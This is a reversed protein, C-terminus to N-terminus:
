SKIAGAIRNAIYPTFIGAVALLFKSFETLDPVEGTKAFRYTAPILIGMAWTVIVFLGIFAILRSSSSPYSPRGNILVPNGNQYRLPESESLAEGLNWQNDGKLRAGLVLLFLLFLIVPIAVTVVDFWKDFNTGIIAITVKGVDKANKKLTVEGPQAQNPVPVSIFRGDPSIYQPKVTLSNKSTQFTIDYDNLHGSFTNDQNSSIVLIAGQSIQTPVPTLITAKTTIKYSKHHVTQKQCPAAWISSTILLSVLFLSLIPSIKLMMKGMM